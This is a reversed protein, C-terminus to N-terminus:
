SNQKDRYGIKLQTILTKSDLKKHDKYIKSILGRETTPNTLIQEWNAPLQKTNNVIDNTKYTSQLKSRLAQAM